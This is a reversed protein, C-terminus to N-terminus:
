AKDLASPSATEGDCDTFLEKGCFWEYVYALPVGAVVFIAVFAVTAPGFLIIWFHDYMFYAREFMWAAGKFGSSAKTTMRREISTDETTRNIWIAFPTSIAYVLLIWTM